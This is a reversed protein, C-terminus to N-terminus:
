KLHAVFACKERCFWEWICDIRCVCSDHLVKTGVWYVITLFEHIALKLPFHMDRRSPSASMTWLSHSSLKLHLPQAEFVLIPFRSFTFHPGVIATNINLHYSIFCMHMHAVAVFYCDLLCTPMYLIDFFTHLPQPWFFCNRPSALKSMTFQCLQSNNWHHVPCIM